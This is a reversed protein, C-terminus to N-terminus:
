PAAAVCLSVVSWILAFDVLALRIGSARSRSPTPRAASTLSSCQARVSRGHRRYRHPEERAQHARPPAHISGAQAQLAQRQESPCPAQIQRMRKVSGRITKSNTLTGGLWRETMYYQGCEEAAVKVLEQAQKQHCRLSGEQRRSRDESFAREDLLPRGQTLSFSPHRQTTSSTVRRAKPNWSRRITM